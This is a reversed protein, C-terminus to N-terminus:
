VPVLLNGYGHSDAVGSDRFVKPGTDLHAWISQLALTSGIQTGDQRFLLLSEIRDQFYPMRIQFDNSPEDGEFRLLVEYTGIKEFSFGDEIADFSEFPAPVADYIKLQSFADYSWDDITDNGDGIRYIYTNQGSSSRFIDDGPGGIYTDDGSHSFFENALHNGIFLTGVESGDIRNSIEADWSIGVNNIGRASEPFSSGFGIGSISSFAGPRLDYTAPYCVLPFSFNFTLLHNTATFIPFNYDASHEYWGIYAKPLKGYIAAAAGVDYLMPTAAHLYTNDQYDTPFDNMLVDSVGSMVTYQENNTADPLANPGVGADKLGIAKGLARIMVTLARGGYLLDDYFATFDQGGRINDLWIDGGKGQNLPENLNPPMALIYNSDDVDATGLRIMGGVSDSVKVFDVNAADRWAMLAQDFLYDQHSNPPAFNSPTEEYYSPVSEMYSYTIVTPESKPVNTWGQGVLAQLHNPETRVDLHQWGTFKEGNFMRFYLEDLRPQDGAGGVLWYNAMESAQITHVVGGELETTGNRLKASNSDAYNADFVQFYVAKPGVDGQKIVQDLRVEQYDELPMVVKFDVRPPGNTIVNATATGWYRGDTMSLRIEDLVSMTGSNFKLYKADAYNLELTTGAEVRTGKYTLYGSYAANNLDTVKIKKITNFDADSVAFLDPIILTEGNNLDRNIPTVKPANANRRNAIRIDKQDSWLASNDRALISITDNFVFNPVTSKNNAVYRLDSLKNVSITYWVNENLKVNSLTFWGGGKSDKIKFSTVHGDADWAELFLPGALSDDQTVRQNTSRVVPRSAGETLSEESRSSNSAVARSRETASPLGVPVFDAKLLEYHESQNAKAKGKAKLNLKTAM